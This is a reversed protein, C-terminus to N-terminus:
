SWIINSLKSKRYNHCKFRMWSKIHVISQLYFRHKNINSKHLLHLRLAFVLRPSESYLNRFRCKNRSWSQRFKFSPPQIHRWQNFFPINHNPLTSWKLHFKPSHIFNTITLQTSSRSYKILFWYITVWHDFSVRTWL